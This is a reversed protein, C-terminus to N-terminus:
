GFLCCNPGDATLATTAGEHRMRGLQTRKVPTSNPDYPDYEVIWGFLNPGCPEKEVNFRRFFRHWAYKCDGLGYRRHNEQEPGEVLQGGFYTQFNEEAVLVTGWPTVGGACNNLTGTCETGDPSDSTKLRKHGAAPGSIKCRTELASIRRNYKGKVVRWKRGERKIEVVSHGHAAMEYMSQQKTMTEAKKRYDLDDFLLEANTYEHNVCLLGHDSSESGIPLPLYVVFDNNYGFQKLQDSASLKDFDIKPSDAFLPDGWRIIPEAVHGPAVHIKQDIGHSVEEFDLTTMSQGSEHGSEGIAAEANGIQSGAVVATTTAAMSALARRRSIRNEILSQLNSRSKEKEM